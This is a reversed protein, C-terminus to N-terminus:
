TNRFRNFLIFPLTFIIYIYAQILPLRSELPCKIISWIMEKPIFSTVFESFSYNRLVFRIRNKHYYYYFKYSFLHTSASGYHYLVSKPEYVVRYGRQKARYCFEIEEYYAPYYSEELFGIKKFVEKKIGISAGTVYDVDIIMNYQGIDEERYGYHNTLANPHIIGGAHQLTKKNPFLIKSGVIGIKNSSTLTNVLEELWEKEVITDNNLLIVVDGKAMRIGVNNGAAFGLNKKNRILRVYPFEKEIINDSDDCSANDVVIIEFKPYHSSFVSNLCDRIYKKGNYNVIIISVLKVKNKTDM